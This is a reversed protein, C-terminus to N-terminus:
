AQCPDNGGTSTCRLHVWVGDTGDIPSIYRVDSNGCRERFRIVQDYRSDVHVNTYHSACYTRSALPFLFASAVLDALQLGAHNKSSGFVPSEVIHPYADGSQRMKQTFMSHSVVADQNHMRGDCIMLGKLNRVALFQEFHRAIDLIAYTYSAQPDLGEDRGKIWVRGILRVHHKELLDMTHTLFGMAHRRQNRSTSRLKSRITGGKVARLIHGLWHGPPVTPHPFFRAKSQLYDATLHLMRREEIILGALVMLPTASLNLNPAEFGGSEDIYCIFM